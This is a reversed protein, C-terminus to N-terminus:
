RGNDRGVGWVRIQQIKEAHVVTMTDPDILRLENDDLEMILERGDGWKAVNDMLGTSLEIIARNVARSSKEATLEEEAIETWGLSRVM